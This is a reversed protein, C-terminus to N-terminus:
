LKKKKPSSTSPTLGLQSDVWTKLRFPEIEVSPGAMPGRLIVLQHIADLGAPQLYLSHKCLARRATAGARSSSCGRSSGAWLLVRRGPGALQQALPPVQRVALARPLILRVNHIRLRGDPLKPPPPGNALCVQIGLQAQQGLSAPLLLLLRLLLPSLILALGGQAALLAAALLLPAELGAGGEQPALQVRVLHSRLLEKKHRSGQWAAPKNLKCPKNM